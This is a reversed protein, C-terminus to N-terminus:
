ITASNYKSKVYGTYKDKITDKPHGHTADAVDPEPVPVPCKRLVCCQLRAKSSFEVMSSYEIATCTKEKDCEEKCEDLSVDIRM